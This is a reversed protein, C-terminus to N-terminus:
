EGNNKFILSGDCMNLIQWPVVVANPLQTEVGERLVPNDFINIEVRPHNYVKLRSAGEESLAIWDFAPSPKFWLLPYKGVQEADNCAQEWWETFKSTDPGNMAANLSFGDGSKVEIAYLIPEDCMIDSIFEEEAVVQAQNKNFGGSQPTRRFINRGTWECFKKAVRRELAKYKRNSYKAAKSRSRGM